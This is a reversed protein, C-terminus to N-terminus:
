RPKAFTLLFGFTYGLGIQTLTDEFTYYTIPGATSRLFIGLAILVVSRWMTHFLMRQFSEGKRVRSRVSYPLAVGALFTFGPQITDHLSMGAWEVHSQNFALWQWITSNPYSRAVEAFRLVEGMMLLMVLGRYADVALNRQLAEPAFATNVASGEKPCDATQSTTMTINREQAPNPSSGVLM